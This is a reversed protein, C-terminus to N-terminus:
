KLWFHAFLATIVEACLWSLYTYCRTRYRKPHTNLNGLVVAPAIPIRQHLTLTPLIGVLFIQSEFSMHMSDFMCAYHLVCIHTEFYLWAQKAEYRLYM